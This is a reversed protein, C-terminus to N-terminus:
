VTDNYEEQLYRGYKFVGSLIMLFLGTFLMLFDPLLSISGSNIGLLSFVKSAAINGTIQLLVSAIIFSISMIFLSRENGKGFPNDDIISKLILKIHKINIIYFVITIIFTPLIILIIPKLLITNGVAGILHFDFWGEVAFIMDGLYFENLIFHKEELLLIIFESLLLLAGAVLLIWMTVNLISKLIVATKKMKEFNRIEM